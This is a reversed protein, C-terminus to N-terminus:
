LPRSTLHWALILLAAAILGFVIWVLVKSRASQRGIDVPEAQVGPAAQVAEVFHAFRRKSARQLRAEFFTGDDLPIRINRTEDDYLLRAASADLHCFHQHNKGARRTGILHSILAGVVGGILGFLMAGIGVATEKIEPGRYLDIGDEGVALSGDYAKVGRVVGPSQTINFVVQFREQERGGTAKTM